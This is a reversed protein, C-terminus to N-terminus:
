SLGLAKRILDNARDPVGAVGAVGNNFSGKPLIQTQLQPANSSSIAKDSTSVSPLMKFMNTYGLMSQGSQTKYGRYYPVINEGFVSQYEDSDIYTDIDADYGQADLVNSHQKVEDYSDPARGLLHKFNLEHSRYRPSNDVFRSKYLDSKALIRVFERVSLQESKLQSEAVILRESEMIHANGLVQQYLASIIVEMEQASSGPVWTIPEPAEPPQTVWTIQPQDPAVYESQKPAVYKVGTGKGLMAATVAYPQSTRASQNTNGGQYYSIASKMPPLNALTQEFATKSSAAQSLAILSGDKTLTSLELIETPRNELLSQDLAVYAGRDISKNSCAAGKLLTFSHTFSTLPIGTQTTYGRNYPVFMTGFNNRYEDSDLYTDIEAEFGGTALIEIHESIEASSQPARGLLHKFNLKIAEVNTYPSFFLDFYRQSKALLRIFELVTIQGGRLKSEALPSRESEMLYANGFVQKYAAAIVLDQEPVSAGPILEVPDNGAFASVYPASIADPFLEDKYLDSGLSKALNFRKATFLKVAKATALPQPKYVPPKLLAEQLQPLGNDNVSKDSSCSGKVLELIRNYGAVPKGTQTSYSVYYPVIDEGFNQAYEDSDIYSDLDADIGETTLTKIHQSVEQGSDPARGLLNKFNIEVVRINPFKNVFLDRYLESKALARVFEKVTLQGDKLQSEAKLLRQSEMLHANGFVQKYAARVVLEINEFNTGPSLKIPQRKRDSLFLSKLTDKEKIWQGLRQPTELFEPSKYYGVPRIAPSLEFARVAKALLDESTPPKPVPLTIAPTVPPLSGLPIIQSPQNQLLASQLQPATANGATSMSKNSSSTGKVLSFSHTYSTLTKGTLTAHGRYYPVIDTGFNELYEDSDLYSDIEADFGEQTLTTLHSSVEASNEPARGLLHKFNLEITRLNTCADFFLTRYRDSKALQRVFELVTIRGSRLQSEALPSRESDMLHANGFVQRYAARIVVDAEEVSAGNILEVAPAKAIARLESDSLSYTNGSFQRLPTQEADGAEERRKIARALDFGEPNFKKRAERLVSPRFLTNNIM